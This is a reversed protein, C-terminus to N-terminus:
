GAHTGEVRAMKALRVKAQELTVTEGMLALQKRVYAEEPTEPPPEAKGQALAGVYQAFKKAGFLTEPRLYVSMEPDKLWQAVKMDIVALVQQRTRGPEALRARILKLNAEVPEYARGTRLNLHDLVERAATNDPVVVKLHGARAPPAPAEAELAEPAQHAETNGPKSIDQRASNGSLPEESGIRDLDSGSGDPTIRSREPLAVPANRSHDQIAGGEYAPLTSKSPKNIKQHESWSPLDVYEIGNINYLRALGLGTIENLAVTVKETTTDQYGFVLLRFQVADWIVRGKDDAQTILGIWLRFAADSLRGVKRHQLAEPKLSRIRPRSM